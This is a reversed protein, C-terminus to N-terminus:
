VNKFILTADFVICSLYTFGFLMQFVNFTAYGNVLKQKRVVTTAMRPSGTRTPWPLRTPPTSGPLRRVTPSTPSTHGDARCSGSGAPGGGGTHHDHIFLVLVNSTTTSTSTMTSTMTSIITSTMTSTGTNTRTTSGCLVRAM